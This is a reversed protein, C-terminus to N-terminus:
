KKSIIFFLLAGIGGILTLITTASTTWLIGYVGRISGKLEDTSRRWDDYRRACTAEHNEHKIGVEKALQYAEFAKQYAEMYSQEM